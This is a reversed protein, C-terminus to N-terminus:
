RLGILRIAKDSIRGEGNIIEYGHVAIHDLEFVPQGNLAEISEELEVRFWDNVIEAVENFNASDVTRFIPKDISLIPASDPDYGAYYIARLVLTPKETKTNQIDKVIGM